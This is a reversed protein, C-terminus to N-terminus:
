LIFSDKNPTGRTIRCRTIRTTVQRGPTLDHNNCWALAGAWVDNSTRLKKTLLLVTNVLSPGRLSKGTELLSSVLALVSIKSQNLRQFQMEPPAWSQVLFHKDSTNRPNSFASTIVKFPVIYINMFLYVIKSFFLFEGKKKYLKRTYYKFVMAQLAVARM